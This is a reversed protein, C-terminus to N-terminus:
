EPFLADLAGFMRLPRCTDLVLHPSFLTHNFFFLYAVWYYSSPPSCSTSTTRRGRTAEEKPNSTHTHRLVESSIGM